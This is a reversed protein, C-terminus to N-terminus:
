KVIHNKYKDIVSQYISMDPAYFGIYNSSFDEHFDKRYESMDFIIWGMEALEKFNKMRDEHSVSRWDSTGNGDPTETILCGTSSIYDKWVTIFHKQAPYNAECSDDLVVDFKDIKLKEVMSKPTDPSYSNCGYLTHIRSRTSFTEEAMEQNKKWKDFKFFGSCEPNRFDFHDVGGIATDETSADNWFEQKKGNGIGLEVIHTIEKVTQQANLLEIEFDIFGRKWARCKDGAVLNKFKETDLM